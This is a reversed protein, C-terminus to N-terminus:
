NPAASVPAPVRPDRLEFLSPDTNSTPQLNTIQIRTTQGRADTTTWDSLRFPDTAFTLTIQGQAEHRSDKATLGFGNSFHTVHTIVVGRDLRIQRALFLSLPTYKLPYRNFAHLRPDFVSVNKGDSVM